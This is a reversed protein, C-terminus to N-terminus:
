TVFANLVMLLSCKYISKDSIRSGSSSFMIFIRRFSTVSCTIPLSVFPCVKVVVKPIGCHSQRLAIEKVNYREFILAYCGGM